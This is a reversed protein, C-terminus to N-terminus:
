DKNIGLIRVKHMLPSKAILSIALAITNPLLLDANWDSEHSAILFRTFWHSFDTVCSVVGFAFWVCVLVIMPVITLFKKNITYQQGDDIQEWFTDKDYVGQDESIPSGKKWHLLWFTLQSLVCLVVVPIQFASSSTLM